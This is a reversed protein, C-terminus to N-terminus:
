SEAHDSTQGRRRARRYALALAVLTILLAGLPVALTLVEGSDVSSM